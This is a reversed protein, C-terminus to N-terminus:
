GIIRGLYDYFNKGFSEPNHLKEYKEINLKSARECWAADKSSAAKFTRVLTEISYDEALCSDESNGEIDIYGAPILGLGISGIMATGPGTDIPANVTFNIRSLLQLLKNRFVPFRLHYIYHINPSTLQKRYALLIEDEVMCYIYLNLEPTQGFAEILLDMGKQINGGSGAVYIFNTRGAEFDKEINRLSYDIYSGLYLLEMNKSIGEFTAVTRPGSLFAFDARRALYEEGDEIGAMSRKFRSVVPVHCRKSFHVYREESMQNFAKWYAGSAYQLVPTVSPYADIIERCFPGHAFILSYQKKLPTFGRADYDVLDVLYGKKNFAKVVEWTLGVINFVQIYPNVQVAKLWASTKMIVLVHGKPEGLMFRDINAICPIEGNNQLSRCKDRCGLLFSLIKQYLLIQNYTSLFKLFGGSTVM